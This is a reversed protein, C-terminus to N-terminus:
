KGWRKFGVYGLISYFAFVASEEYRGEQLSSISFFGDGLIWILFGIRNKQIILYDGLLVSIVFLWKM